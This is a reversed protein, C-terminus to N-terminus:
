LCLRWRACFQRISHISHSLIFYSIHFIPNPNPNTYFISVWFHRCFLHFYHAAESAERVSLKAMLKSPLSPLSGVYVPYTGFIAPPTLVHVVTPRHTCLTIPQGTPGKKRRSVFEFKLQFEFHFIGLHNRLSAPGLISALSTPPLPTTEPIHEKTRHLLQRGIKRERGGLKRLWFIRIYCVRIGLIAILYTLKANLKATASRYSIKVLLKTNQALRQAELTTRQPLPPRDGVWRPNSCTNAPNSLHLNQFSPM